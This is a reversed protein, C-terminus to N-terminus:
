VFRTCYIRKNSIQCNQANEQKLKLLQKWKRMYDHRNLNITTNHFCKNRKYVSADGKLARNTNYFDMNGVYHNHNSTKSM